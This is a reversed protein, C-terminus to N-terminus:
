AVDAPQTPRRRELHALLQVDVRLAPRLIERVVLDSANGRQEVAIVQDLARKAPLFRAVDRPELLDLRVAALPMALVQRAAALAGLGVGAAALANALRDGALLADLVLLGCGDSLVAIALPFFFFARRLTLRPTAWTCLVNLLVM